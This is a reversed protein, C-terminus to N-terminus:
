ETVLYIDGDEGIDSTPEATGSLVAVVSNELAALRTELANVDSMLAMESDNYTPRTNKGKLLLEPYSGGVQLKTSNQLRFVDFKNGSSTTGSFGGNTGLNIDGTMTGGALPLYSSLDSTLALTGSQTPYNITKGNSYIRHPSISIEDTSTKIEISPEGTTTQNIDTCLIITGYEGGVYARNRVEIGQDAHLYICDEVMDIDSVGNNMTLRPTDDWTICDLKKKDEESLTDSTLAFTGSKTPFTLEAGNAEIRNPYLEVYYGDSTRIDMYAEEASIYITQNGYQLDVSAPSINAYDGSDNAIEISPESITGDNSNPYLGITGNNKTLTGGALPLYNLLDSTNAKGAAVTELAEIADTNDDILDSLEKLTDYATGAGNLLDNKVADAAEDAYTKATALNTDSYSQASSLTSEDGKAIESKILTDYETLRELSVYKKAM